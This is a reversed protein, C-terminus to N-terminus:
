SASFTPKEKKLSATIGILADKTKFLAAQKTLEHNLTNDLEDFIKKRLTAKTEVLALPAGSAIKQGFELCHNLLNAEDVIEKVIGLSLAKQANIKEGTLLIEAANNLGLLNPLLSTLAFGPHIGLHVFPAWFYARESCIRFDCSMVLGLGAGIAAGQVACVIPLKCKIVQAAYNYFERTDKEFDGTGGVGGQSFNAGASFSKGNSSLVITRTKTLDKELESFLEALSKMLKIDTYNHPPRNIIIHAVWGHTELILDQQEM